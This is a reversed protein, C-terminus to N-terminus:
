NKPIWGTPMYMMHSIYIYIHVEHTYIYIYVTYREDWRMEDWRMEYWIMDYWIMDYWIMYTCILEITNYIYVISYTFQIYELELYSRM